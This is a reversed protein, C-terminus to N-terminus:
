RSEEHGNKHTAFVYPPPPTTPYVAYVCVCWAVGTYWPPLTLCPICLRLQLLTALSLPSTKLGNSIWCLPLPKCINYRSDGCLLEPNPAVHVCKSVCVVSHACVCAFLVFVFLVSLGVCIWVHLNIYVYEWQSVCVCACQRVRHLVEGWQTLVSSLAPLHFRVWCNLICCQLVALMLLVLRCYKEFSGCYCAAPADLYPHTKLDWKLRSCQMCGLILFFTKQTIWYNVGHYFM